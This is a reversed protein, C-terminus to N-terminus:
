LGLYSAFTFVTVGAALSAPVALLMYTLGGVALALGLIFVERSGLRGTPLPRNATRHMVADTRREYWQNLISAAATVLGTALVAHLLGLSPEGALLGGMA